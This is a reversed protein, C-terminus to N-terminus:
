HIGEYTEDKRKLICYGVGLFILLSIAIPIAIAVATEWLKRRRGPYYCPLSFKVIISFNSIHKSM